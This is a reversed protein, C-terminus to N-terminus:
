IPILIFWYLSGLIGILGILRISNWLTQYPKFNLTNKTKVSMGLIPSIIKQDIKPM